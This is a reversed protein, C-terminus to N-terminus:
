WARQFGNKKHAQVRVVGPPRQVFLFASTFDGIWALVCIKTSVSM